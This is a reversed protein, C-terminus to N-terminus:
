PTVRRVPPNFKFNFEMVTNLIRIKLALVETCSGESVVMFDCKASIVMLVAERLSFGDLGLNPIRFGVGQSGTGQWWLFHIICYIFCVAAGAICWCVGSCPLEVYCISSLSSINWRAVEVSTIQEAILYGTVIWIKAVRVLRRMLVM